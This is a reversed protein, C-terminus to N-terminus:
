LGRISFYLITLVLQPVFINLLAFGYSFKQVRSLGILLIRLSLILCIITLAGSIQLDNLSGNSVIVKGTLYIFKFVEPILSLSLVTDINRKTAEGKWIKGFFFIINIWVLKSFLGMVTGLILIFTVGALKQQIGSDFDFFLSLGSEATAYDWICYITNRGM